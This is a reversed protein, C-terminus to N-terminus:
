ENVCLLNNFGVERRGWGRKGHWLDESVRLWEGLLELRVGDREVLGRDGDVM